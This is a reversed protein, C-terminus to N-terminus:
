RLSGDEFPLVLRCANTLERLRSTESLRELHRDAFVALTRVLAAAAVAPNPRNQVALADSWIDTIRNVAAHRRNSYATKIAMRMDALGDQDLILEDVSQDGILCAIIGTQQEPQLETLQQWHCRAEELKGAISCFLVKIRLLDAHPLNALLPQELQMRAKNLDGALLAHAATHVAADEYPLLHRFHEIILLAAQSCGTEAMITMIKIMQEAKDIPLWELVFPVIDAERGSIRLLHFLRFLPPEFAPCCKVAHLYCEAAKEVDLSAEHLLGLQYSSLYTGMGEETHFGSSPPGTKVANAFAEKAQHFDARNMHFIGLYHYLDAYGPYKAIGETCVAAGQEYQGLAMHCKAECKYLLHAYSTKPDTMMRSKRFGEQAELVKGLRMWEVSINYLHFPDDPKEKLTEQLLLLNRETKNKRQIVEEQYGYHNIRVDTMMFSANPNRSQISPTIQEHIRGEFRHHPHNRFMRITPNIVAPGSREGPYNYIHVFFGEMSDQGAYQLLKAGAAEDLEEDADLVLIWKGSAHQLGVNRAFAFDSRWESDIVTAGLSRAIDATGDTSGTDVVIIEDVAKGASELCRTIVDAEDKVIMCLSILPSSM